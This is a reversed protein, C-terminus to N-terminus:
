EGGQGGESVGGGRVEGGPLFPLSIMVLLCWEGGGASSLDRHTYEGEKRPVGDRWCYALQRM